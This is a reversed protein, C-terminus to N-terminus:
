SGDKPEQRYLELAQDYTLGFKKLLFCVMDSSTASEKRCLICTTIVEDCDEPEEVVQRGGCKKTCFHESCTFCSFYPGCDAFTRECNACTYFDVGM